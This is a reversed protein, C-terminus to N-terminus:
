RIIRNNCIYTNIHGVQIFVYLIICVLWYSHCGSGHVGMDMFVWIWSCGDHYGLGHVGMAMFNAHIGMDYAGM